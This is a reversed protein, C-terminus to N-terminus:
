AAVRLHPRKLDQGGILWNQGAHWLQDHFERREAGELGSSLVVGDIMDAMVATTPRGRVVVAVTVTGDLNRTVSRRIGALRPPSRFGPAEVGHHGAADTLIRGLSAFDTASTGQLSTGNIQNSSSQNSSNQMRRESGM